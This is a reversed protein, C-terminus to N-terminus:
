VKAGKKKLETLEILDLFEDFLYGSDKPGPSAEPHFQVTFVPANKYRIGEVTGDNLNVHTIECINMDLTDGLVAYGHNQSTIYTRDAKLDKVPHNAGRHGYKLKATKAGQALGMIQHGLCIGFVPTGSEALLRANEIIERNEEPDGPGNSLMIGDPKSALIERADATGPFVTVSCGRSVLSRLINTKYGYDLLAINYRGDKANVTLKKDITVSKV